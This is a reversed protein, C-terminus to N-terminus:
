LRSSHGSEVELCFLAERGSKRGWALGDPISEIGLAIGAILDSIAAKRNFLYKEV